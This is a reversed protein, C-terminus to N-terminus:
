FCMLKAPTMLCKLRKKGAAEGPSEYRRLEFMRAKNQPIKLQPFKEFGYLLSSEIREYAPATAPANLYADASQMYAADKALKDSSNIFDTLSQYPILVYLKTQAEPKIETFVGIHKSGLKNLAPIAAHQYYDEVLKQQAGDKLSYVRLEYFERPTAKM